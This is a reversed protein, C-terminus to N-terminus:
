SADTGEGNGKGDRHIGLSNARMYCSMKTRGPLRKLVEQGEGPYFKRLIVDEDDTWRKQICSCLGLSRAKSWCSTLSHRQLVEAFEDADARDPYFEKLLELEKDTWKKPKKDATIGLTSARFNCQRPTLGEMGPREAVRGGETPYYKRLIEDREPTFVRQSSTVQLGLRRAKLACATATRKPLRKYVKPGETAYYRTLIEVEEETFRKKPAHSHNGM